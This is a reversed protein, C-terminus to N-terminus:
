ALTLYWSPLKPMGVSVSEFTKTGEKDQITRSWMIKQYLFVLHDQTSIPKNALPPNRKVLILLRVMETLNPILGAHLIKLNLVISICTM